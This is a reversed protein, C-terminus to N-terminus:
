PSLVLLSLVIFWYIYKKTQLIWIVKYASQTGDPVTLQSWIAGFPELHSNSLCITWCQGLPDLITGLPGVSDVFFWCLGFHDFITGSHGFHNWLTFFQGFIKLFTYFPGLINLLTKCPRWHDWIFSFPRFFLWINLLIAKLVMKLRTRTHDLITKFFKSFLWRFQNPEVLDGPRTKKKENQVPRCEM